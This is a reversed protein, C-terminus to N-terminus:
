YSKKKGLPLVDINTFTIAIIKLYHKHGYYISGVKYPNGQSDVELNMM